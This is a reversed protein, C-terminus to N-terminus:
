RISDPVDSKLSVISQHLRDMYFTQSVKEGNSTYYTASIYHLMRTGTREGYKLGKKFTQSVEAKTRMLAIVSDSVHTTSDLDSFTLETIANNALNNDLFSTVLERESYKKECGALTAALGLALILQSTKM